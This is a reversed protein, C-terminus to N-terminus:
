YHLFWDILALPANIAKFAMQLAIDKDIDFIKVTIIQYVRRLLRHYQKVMGISNYAEVPVGKTNIGM